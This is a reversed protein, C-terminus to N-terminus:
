GRRHTHLPNFRLSSYFTRFLTSSGSSPVPVVPPPSWWDLGSPSPYTLPRRHRSGSDGPSFGRIHLPHFNLTPATSDYRVEAYDHSRCRACRARSRCRHSTRKYRGYHFVNFRARWVDAVGTPCRPRSSNWSASRTSYYSM